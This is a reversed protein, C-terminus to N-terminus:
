SLIKLGVDPNEEVLKVLRERVESDSLKEVKKLAKPKLTTAYQGRAFAAIASHFKSGLAVWGNPNGSLKSALDLCLVKIDLGLASYKQPVYLASFSSCLEDDCVLATKELQEKVSKLVNAQYSSPDSVVRIINEADCSNKFLVAVPMNHSSAWDNPSCSGTKNHWLTALQNATSEKLYSEIEAIATQKFDSDSRKSGCSMKGYLDKVEAEGLTGVHSAFLKRILELQVEYSPDFFLKRLCEIQGEFMQSFERMGDAVNSNDMLKEFNILFPYDGSLVAVAVKNEEYVAKRMRDMADSYSMFVKSSLLSQVYSVIKYQAYVISLEEEVNRSDWLWSAATAFHEKVTKCYQGTVDGVASAMQALQPCVLDIHNKFAKSFAEMNIYKCLVDEIGENAAVLEGIKKVRLTREQQDGKSSIKEAVCLNELIERLVPASPESTKDIYDPLVWLPARDSVKELRDAIEALTAEVTANAIHPTGFMQPAKEIFCKEEKSMRCILKESRIANNGADRVAAEIMEALSNVDLKESMSGNTWQLQQRPNNIWNRMAIGM